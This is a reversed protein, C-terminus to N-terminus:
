SCSEEVYCRALLENADAVFKSALQEDALTVEFHQGRLLGDIKRKAEALGLNTRERLFQNFRVAIFGPEWSEVIVKVM